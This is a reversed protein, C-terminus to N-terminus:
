IHKRRRSCKKCSKKLSTVEDSANIKIQKLARDMKEGRKLAKRLAPAAETFRRGLSNYFKGGFASMERAKEEIEWDKESHTDEFHEAIKAIRIAEDLLAILDPEPNTM